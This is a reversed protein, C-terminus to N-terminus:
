MSSWNTLLCCAKSTQFSSDTTMISRLLFRWAVELSGFNSADIQDLPAYRTHGNDGGYSPWEGNETQALALTATCLLAATVAARSMTTKM